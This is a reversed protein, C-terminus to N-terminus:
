PLKSQCAAIRRPTMTWTLWIVATAWCAASLTLAWALYWPRYTFAVQHRGPTVDITILGDASRMVSAPRGDIRARWGPSFPTNWRLSTVTEPVDITAECSQLDFRHFTVPLPTEPDADVVFFRSLAALGDRQVLAEAAPHANPFYSLVVPQKRFYHHNTIRNDERLPRQNDAPLVFRSVTTREIEARLAVKEERDVPGLFDHMHPSVSLTASWTLQAAHLLCLVGWVLTTKWATPTGRCFAPLFCVLTMILGSLALWAGLSGLAAASRELDAGQRIWDAAGLTALWGLAVAAVGEIRTLPRRQLEAMATAAASVLFFQVMHGLWFHWRIHRFLPLVQTLLRACAYESSLSALYVFAAAGLCVVTNLRPQFCAATLALVVSSGAFLIVTWAQYEDGIFSDAGVPCFLTLWSSGDLSGEHPDVQRKLFVDTSLNSFTELIVFALMGGTLTLGSLISLIAPRWRMTTGTAAQRAPVNRADAGTAFWAVAFLATLELMLVNLGLYGCTCMLGLSLALLPGGDPDGRLCRTFALVMWPLMAVSALVEVNLQAVIVAPAGLALTPALFAAIGPSSIHKLWAYMGVVLLSMYLMVEWKLTATTYPGFRSLAIMVPSTAFPTYLSNIQVGGGTYPDWLPVMGEAWSLAFVSVLPLRFRLNDNLFPLPMWLRAAFWACPLAVALVALPVLFARCRAALAALGTVSVPFTRSAFVIKKRTTDLCCEAFDEAPHTAHGEDGDPLRM